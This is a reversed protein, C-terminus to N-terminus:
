FKRRNSTCTRVEANYMDLGKECRVKEKESKQTSAAMHQNRVLYAFGRKKRDAVAQRKVGGKGEV